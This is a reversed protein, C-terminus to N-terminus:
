GFFPFSLRPSARPKRFALFFGAGAALALGAAAFFLVSSAPAVRFPFRAVFMRGHEDRARVVGIYDGKKFDHQFSLSGAPYKKPPVYVETYQEWDDEDDGQAADRLIRFDILMDRLENYHDSAFAMGGSDQEVDLVILTRGASPLDGCFPGKADSEPQYGSYNLLYPGIRVSCRDRVATVGERGSALSAFLCGIVFCVASLAFHKM